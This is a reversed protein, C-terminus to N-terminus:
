GCGFISNNITLAARLLGQLHQRLLQAVLQSGFHSMHLQCCTYSNSEAGHGTYSLGAQRSEACDHAVASSYLLWWMQVGCEQGFVQM